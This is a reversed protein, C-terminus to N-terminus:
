RTLCFKILMIALKIVALVIAFSLLYFAVGMLKGLVYGIKEYLNM